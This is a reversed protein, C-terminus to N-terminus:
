VKDIKQYGSKKVQFVCDNLLVATSDDATPIDGFDANAIPNGKAFREEEDFVRAKPTSKKKTMHYSINNNPIPRYKYKVEEANNNIIM